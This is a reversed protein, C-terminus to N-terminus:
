TVSYNFMTARFVDATTMGAPTASGVNQATATLVGVIDGAGHIFGTITTIMPNIVAGGTNTVFGACVPSTGTFAFPLSFLWLGTGLTTTSGITLNLFVDVLLGKQFYSGVLTGNGLSPNASQATWTPTYSIAAGQDHFLLRWRLTTGDYEYEARGVNAALSSAAGTMVNLLRNAATSSTNQHALDVQGAGASIIAVRQGPYGAKLGRITAVTANTMRITSANLFDLDDVAGTNSFPFETAGTWYANAGSGGSSLWQGATGVSANASVTNNLLVAGNVTLSTANLTLIQASGVGFRMTAAANGVVFQMGNGLDIESRIIAADNVYFGTNTWNEGMVLLRLGSTAVQSNQIDVEVYAATGTNANLITSVFGSNSGAATNGVSITNGGIVTNGPVITITGNVSLSANATTLGNHISAGDVQLTTSVNAFGTISVNGSLTSLGVVILARASFVNATLNARTTGDSCLVAFAGNSASTFQSRGTFGIFAAAGAEVNATAIVDGTINTNGAVNLTSNLNAAVTNLTLIQAGGVGFRMTAAANGVVFQMGNGLDIEARIVAADNVFFGSNTWNEGMVLLRLGSTSVQSNQIDLEAFAGTGQNANLLASTFNSNVGAATNGVVITNGSLVTNGAAGNVTLASGFVSIGAVQLTSTVNAFGTVTANGSALTGGTTSLAGNVTLAGNSTIAGTTQIIVNSVGVYVNAGHVANADFTVVGVLHSTTGVNLSTAINAFGSLTANGTLTTLGSVTLNNATTNGNFTKDGSIVQAATSLAGNVTSNAVFSATNVNLAGELKGFAHSTDNATLAANAQNSSQSWNVNLTAETKGGLVLANNSQNSSQAWNVNLTAEAKGTLLLANAAVLSTAASNVNLDAELKGFAHTTNNATLATAANNAQNSSESWNVNLTAEAKGTLLLANAALLSTAASNVNLDAELKGFAHTTNNAALATAASNVNLDGELKGFAHTTNNVTLASGDVAIHLAGDSGVNTTLIIGSGAVFIALANTDQAVLNAQGAVALTGYANGGGGGGGSVTKWTQDGALFTSSNAVGSGLRATPITGADINSADALHTATNATNATEAFEYDTVPTLQVSRDDILQSPQISRPPLPFTSLTNYGSIKTTTAAM